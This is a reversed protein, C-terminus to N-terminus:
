GTRRGQQRERDPDRGTLRYAEAMVEALMQIYEPAMMHVSQGIEVKDFLARALAKREIVPIGHEAAM